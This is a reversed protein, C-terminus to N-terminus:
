SKIKDLYLGQGTIGVSAMRRLGQIRALVKELVSIRNRPVKRTVLPICTSVDEGGGLDVYV